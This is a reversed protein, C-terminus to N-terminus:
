LVHSGTPSLEVHKVLTQRAAEITKACAEFEQAVEAAWPASLRHVQALVTALDRGRDAAECLQSRLDTFQVQEIRWLPLEALTNCLDGWEDARVFDRDRFSKSDRLLAEVVEESLVILQDCIGIANKLGVSMQTRLIHAQVSLWLALTSVAVTAGYGWWLTPWEGVHFSPM